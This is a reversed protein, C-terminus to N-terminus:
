IQPHAFPFRSHMSHLHNLLGRRRVFNRGCFKCPYTVHDTEHLKVHKKMNSPDSFSKGCVQCKLPKEGSHTRMHIKLVYKRCYIKGCKECRFGKSGQVQQQQRPQLPQTSTEEGDSEPETKKVPKNNVKPKEKVELVVTKDEMVVARDKEQKLTPKQDPSQPSTEDQSQIVSVRNFEIRGTNRLLPFDKIILPSPFSCPTNEGNLWTFNSAGQETGIDFKSATSCQFDMQDVPEFFQSINPLKMGKGCEEVERIVPSTEESKVNPSRPEIKVKVYDVTSPGSPVTVEVSNNTILNNQEEKGLLREITFNKANDSRNDLEEVSDSKTMGKTNIHQDGFLHSTHNAPVVRTINEDPLRKMGKPDKENSRAKKSKSVIGSDKPPKSKVQKSQGVSKEPKSKVIVAPKLDASLGLNFKEKRNLNESLRGFILDSTFMFTKRFAEKSLPSDAAIELRSRKASKQSFASDLLTLVSPLQQSINEANALSMTGKRTPENAPLM